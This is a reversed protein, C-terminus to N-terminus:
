ILMNMIFKKLILKPDRKISDIDSQLMLIINPVIRLIDTEIDYNEEISYELFDDELNDNLDDNFEFNNEDNTDFLQNKMM